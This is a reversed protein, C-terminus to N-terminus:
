FTAGVKNRPLDGTARTRITIVRAIDDMWRGSSQAPVIEPVGDRHPSAARGENGDFFEVRADGCERGPRM